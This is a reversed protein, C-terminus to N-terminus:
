LKSQSARTFGRLVDLETLVVVATMAVFVPYASHDEGNGAPVRQGEQSSTLAEEALRSQHRQSYGSCHNGRSHLLPVPLTALWV